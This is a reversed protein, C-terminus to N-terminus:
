YLQIAWVQRGSFDTILEYSSNSVFASSTDWVRHRHICGHQIGTVRPLDRLVCVDCGCARGSRSLLAVGLV